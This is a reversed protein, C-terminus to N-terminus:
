AAKLSLTLKRDVYTPKFIEKEINIGIVTTLFDHNVASVHQPGVMAM